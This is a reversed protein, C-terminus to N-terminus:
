CRGKNHCRKRVKGHRSTYTAAEAYRDNKKVSERMDLHSTLYVGWAVTMRSMLMDAIFAYTVPQSNYRAPPRSSGLSKSGDQIPIAETPKRNLWVQICVYMCVYCVYMYIYM